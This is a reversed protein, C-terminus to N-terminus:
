SVEPIEPRSRSGSTMGRISRTVFPADPALAGPVKLEALMALSRDARELATAYEDPGPTHIAERADLDIATRAVM